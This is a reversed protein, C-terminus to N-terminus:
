RAHQQACLFTVALEAARSPCGRSGIPSFRAVLARLPLPGCPPSQRRLRKPAAKAALAEIEPESGLPLLHRFSRM